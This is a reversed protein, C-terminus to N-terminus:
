EEEEGGDNEVLDLVPRLHRKRSSVAVVQQMARLLRRDDGTLEDLDEPNVRLELLLSADGEVSHVRVDDPNSVVPEAMYRVVKELRKPM